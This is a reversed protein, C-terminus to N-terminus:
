LNIKFNRHKEKNFGQIQRQIINQNIDICM